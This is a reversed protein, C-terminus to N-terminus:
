IRLIKERLGIDMSAKYRKARISLKETQEKALLALAIKNIINFNIASNKKRKQSADEGFVVDLTWHLKNEISWHKRIANNIKEADPPLSSIYYRTEKTTKKERKIFRESEIKVVTRLKEWDEKEDMFVLDNVVYCTRTEVRGHGVDTQTNTTQKAIGSFMKCVQEHLEKQNEKVALIYDAKGEVIKKAIEKQCGMADITVICGKTVIIELLRPIAEIENSKESTEVQGLSLRNDAAFASVVHIASKTDSHNSAGRIRKGDIAIVEGETINAISSVWNIFCETFEKTDISSFVGGLVDHSPIGKKFPRYKRLWNIQSKGFVEIHTWDVAGSIVASIVLFVMDSLLHRHNGRNERRPDKLTEFYTTFEACQETLKNANIM